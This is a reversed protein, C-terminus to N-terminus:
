ILLSTFAHIKDPNDKKHLDMIRKEMEILYKNEM